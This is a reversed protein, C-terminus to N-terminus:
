SEAIGFLEEIERRYSQLEDDANWGLMPASASWRRAPAISLGHDRTEFAVHLRRILLDGLTRAMEHTVGWELEAAIYPLAPILREALARDLSALRGSSAGGRATRTCWISPSTRRASRRARWRSSTRWRRSRRRRPAAAQADARARSGRAPAARGRGDGGGGDRPLDHAQRRDGLAARAGDVRDRARAVGRRSGQRESAVLPRIGAWASVVDSPTLHAGPFFANASRLLYAVDASTARVDDRAPRRLRHGHHRHHQVRGHSARVDRPRRDALAAHARRQQSHARAARGRARGQHRAGRAAGAAGGHPSDCREVARRRERRRARSDRPRRGHALDVARAGCVGDSTMLSTTCAVVHNAVVAGADRAGLVTALTLRIDDTAADFYSAGGSWGWTACRGARAGHGRADDLLAIAASTAASRSRMTSSSDRACSGSGSARRRTCRGCSSCRGCSIRRSRARPDQARPVGRVRSRLQAHELYRVGGHVLRSSRSSTGSAFDAGEVLAVSLGRMAADRAVGAGTIGGGIVLVDFQREALRALTASRSAPAVQDPPALVGEIQDTDPM